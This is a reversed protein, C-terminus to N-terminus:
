LLSPHSFLTNGVFLDFCIYHAWGLLMVLDDQFSRQLGRVTM